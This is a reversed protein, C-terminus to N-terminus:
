RGEQGVVAGAYIESVIVVSQSCDACHVHVYVRM